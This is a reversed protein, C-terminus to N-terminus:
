ERSERLAAVIDATSRRVKSGAWVQDIRHFFVHLKTQRRPPVADFFPKGQNTVRVSRGGKILPNLKNPTSRVQKLTITEM